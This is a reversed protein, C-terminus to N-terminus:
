ERRRDNGSRRDLGVSDLWNELDLKSISRDLNDYAIFEKYPFLNRRECKREDAVRTGDARTYPLARSEAERLERLSDYLQPALRGRPIDPTNAELYLQLHRIVEDKLRAIEAEHDPM